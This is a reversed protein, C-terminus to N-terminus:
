VGILVPIIIPRKNTKQFLYKGVADTVNTKIYEFNIPNMGISVDEVSKKVILRAHSLMEQSERLYVFGRSIIDPSKRLKGTKPNISAIIVFMGDKSLMQRDRLVVEQVDGISFGDVLVLGSGAKEKRVVLKTGREQIEIIMGNDPIIVNKEPMGVSQALDGHVRLMYHYGHMPMFFRPKVKQHIWVMEDHNAHGSAHVAAANYHIIRAGQRSLNDKLKQVSRENGPIISSSLLITDRTNIKFYKNTKNAMRMLAAFEDGQAGTALVVIREPPYDGMMPSTIFTDKKVTVLGLEKAIDINNKMSRGEVVVKKNFKECIEIIKILRELQSAFTGVILRGTSAAIIKEINEHVIREPLSFGEREVNTSDAMLMLVNEKKFKGFENEEVKTPVGDVHDLKLDGTAVVSGYPTEIIVGMSDPITHSVAFFKIHLGGLKIVEDKEVIRIDLPQLHPFETQRKKIMVTTLLRSYIPPYGLGEIIYPIAGIHDLHGHTIIIGRINKKREELYATNPLIFDIGPTSEEGFQFGADVVIIDDRYEIVTMNKGIEEVGGLPIIRINDDASPIASSPKRPGQAHPKHPGRFSGASNPRRVLQRSRRNNGYSGPQPATGQHGHYAHRQASREESARAGQSRNHQQPSLPQANPRAHYTNKRRGNYPDPARKAGSSNQENM